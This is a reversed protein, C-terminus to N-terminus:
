LADIHLFHIATITRIPNIVKLKDRTVVYTLKMQTLVKASRLPQKEEKYLM